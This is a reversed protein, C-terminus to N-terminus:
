DLFPNRLTLGSELALGSHMDETHLVQCGALDAAALIAADYLNLRHREAFDVALRHTDLTLPAVELTATFVELADRIDAWPAKFKRSAVAAFENLVQVSIVGGDAILAECRDAKQPDASFLYLLINTDFFARAASM